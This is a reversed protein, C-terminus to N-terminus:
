INCVYGHVTPPPVSTTRATFGIDSSSSHLPIFVSTRNFNCFFKIKKKKKEKKVFDCWGEVDAASQNQVRQKSTGNELVAFHCAQPSIIRVGELGCRGVSPLHPRSRGRPAMAEVLSRPDPPDLFDFQLLDAIGMAKLTPVLAAHHKPPVDAAFGVHSTTAIGSLAPM